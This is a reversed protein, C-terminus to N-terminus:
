MYQKPATEAPAKEDGDDDEDDDDSPLLLDPANPDPNEATGFAVLRSTSTNKIVEDGATLTVVQDMGVQGSLPADPAFYATVEHTQGPVEVKLTWVDCDWERGAAEVKVRDPKKTKEVKADESQRRVM